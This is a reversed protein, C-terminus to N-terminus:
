SKRATKVFSGKIVRAAIVRGRIEIGIAQDPAAYEAKVYAMGFGNNLIPSMSGSTVEGIKAGSALDVVPYHSRPVGKGEFVFKVLKEPVGDKKAKQLAEQGLFAVPKDPHLFKNLGAGWVSKQDDIEHGYLPFAVEMRLTDRAGLGAPAVGLPQGLALLKEWLWLTDKAECFIEFGDEGTYGMRALMLERGEVLAWDFWWYGINQLSRGVLAEVLEVGKPGQVAVQGTAESKDTLTVNGFLHEKIWERDKDVNSANVCLLYKTDCIKYVSLDDVCTGNPYLMPSYRVQGVQQDGFQNPLLHELNALADPGELYLEGMHSVDFLSVQNRCNLHEALIGEYQIPMDWGSFDVMRAGHTHHWQNLPTKKM